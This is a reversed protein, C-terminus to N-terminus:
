SVKGREIATRCAVALVVLEDVTEDDSGEPMAMDAAELITPLDEDM